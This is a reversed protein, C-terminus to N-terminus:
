GYRCTPPVQLVSLTSALVAQEERDRWMTPLAIVDKRYFRSTERIPDLLM